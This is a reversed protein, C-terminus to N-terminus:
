PWWRGVDRIALFVEAVSQSGGLQRIVPLLARLDSLLNRRTRSALLPLTQSWLPYLFSTPRTGLQEALAALASSRYDEHGIARAAQLAEALTQTRQPEPLHAALAGLAEARQTQDLRQRAYALAQNASWLRRKVAVLLLDTPISEALSHVSARCLACRVEGGLHAAQGGREILMENAKVAAQWARGVDNLFGAYSGELTEWARRWGDSVLALLKEVNAGVRELHVAYYQVVYSSADLAALRGDNLAALTDEGWALFRSEMTQRERVSLRDRFYEGLRPHSFVYGQQEGDGIVFRGLPRV